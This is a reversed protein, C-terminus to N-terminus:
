TTVLRQLTQKFVVALRSPSPSLLAIGRRIPDFNLDNSRRQRGVSWLFLSAYYIAHNRHTVEGEKAAQATLLLHIRQGGDFRFEPRMTEAIDLIKVAHWAAKKQVEPDFPPKKAEATTGRDASSGYDQEIGTSANHSDLRLLHDNAAREISAFNTYTSLHIMHYLMLTGPQIKVTHSSLWKQLALEFFAHRGPSVGASDAHEISSTSASSQVDTLILPLACLTQISTTADDIPSSIVSSFVFADALHHAVSISGTKAYQVTPIHSPSAVDELFFLPLMPPRQMLVVRFCELIRVANLVGQFRKMPATTDLETRCLRFTGVLQAHYIDLLSMCRKDGSLFAFVETLIWAELIDLRRNACTVGKAYVLTLLKRRSFHHLWTAIVESKLASCYLGGAAAIGLHVEEGEIGNM